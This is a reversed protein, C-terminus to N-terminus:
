ALALSEVPDSFLRRLWTARPADTDILTRAQSQRYRQHESDVAQIRRTVRMLRRGMVEPHVGSLIVLGAGLKIAQVLPWQQDVDRVLTYQATSRDNPEFVGGGWYLMAMPGDCTQVQRAVTNLWTQPQPVITQPYLPLQGRCIGQVVAYGTRRLSAGNPATYAIQDALMYAGACIGLVRGGAAVFDKLIIGMPMNQRYAASNPAGPLIVAQPRESGSGSLLLRAQTADEFLTVRVQLARLLPYLFLSYDGSSRFVGIHGQM